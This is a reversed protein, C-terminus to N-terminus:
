EGWEAHYVRVTFEVSQNRQENVAMEFASSEQYALRTADIRGNVTSVVRKDKTWTEVVMRVNVITDHCVNKVTGTVKMNGSAAILGRKSVISICETVDTSGFENLREVTPASVTMARSPSVTPVSVPVSELPASRAFTSSLLVATVIAVPISIIITALLYYGWVTFARTFISDSMLGSREEIAQLWSRLEKAEARAEAADKQAIALSVRLDIEDSM